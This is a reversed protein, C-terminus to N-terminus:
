ILGADAGGDVSLAVGTLYNAADSCLFTAIRGFDAADGARRAALSSAYGDMGDGILAELRATLINAPLISNVTVGDAIVERALTKLYGTLGARATNSQVMGALPQRVGTSTIAVIRGWGRERMGPLCGQCLEVMALLCRDLARALESADADRALGPPPGGVNAVLIDIQGLEAMAQETAERAGERTSLDCQIPTANSGVVECAAALKDADRGTLVVRVGEEALAVATALGLGASSAGVLARKGDLGLNM